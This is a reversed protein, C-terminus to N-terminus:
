GTDSVSYSFDACLPCAAPHAGADTQISHNPSFGRGQCINFQSEKIGGVANDSHQGHYGVWLM